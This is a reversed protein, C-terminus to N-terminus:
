STKKMSSFDSNNSVNQKGHTKHPLASSPYAPLSPPLTKTSFNSKPQLAVGRMQVMHKPYLLKDWMSIKVHLQCNAGIHEM